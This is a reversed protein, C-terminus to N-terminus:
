GKLKPSTGTVGDEINDGSHMSSCAEYAETAPPQQTPTRSSIDNEACKQDERKPVVGAVKINLM